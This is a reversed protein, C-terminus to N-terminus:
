YAKSLTLDNSKLSEIQIIFLSIRDDKTSVAATESLLNIFHQYNRSKYSTTGVDRFTSSEKSLNLYAVNYNLLFAAFKILHYAYLPQNMSAVMLNQHPVQLDLILTALDPALHQLKVTQDNFVLFGPKNASLYDKLNKQLFQSFKETSEKDQLNLLDFTAQYANTNLEKREVEFLETDFCIVRQELVAASVKYSFESM